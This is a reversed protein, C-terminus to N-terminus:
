IGSRRMLTQGSQPAHLDDAIAVATKRALRSWRFPRPDVVPGRELMLDALLRGIGPSLGFGHGSCGSAIWAGALGPVSDIVPVADPTVDMVGAWAHSVKLNELSPFAKGANKLARRLFLASPQPDLTRVQEFITEESADWKRPMALERFFSAGFRLHFERWSDLLRPVYQGFLRFNDPLIEAINANRLTLTHGGDQRPRISFNETGFPHDPIDAAGTVRAVTGTVRLQPFDIDHNRLLARSWVGGAVVVRAARIRGKETVVGAVRGGEIDLVRVACNTLITVGARRAGEAMAPAAIWPEACGDDLSWLAMQVPGRIGPVTQRVHQASLLRTNIGYRKGVEHWRTWHAADRRTFAAYTIGTQRFGTSGGIRQDMGRWLDLAVGALPLEAEERGMQRVWGWNRCSQEGAVVGKECITVSLGAEALELGTMIGVIGGGVIVVDAAAPLVDSGQFPAVPVSISM